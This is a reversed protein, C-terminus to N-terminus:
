DGIVVERLQGDIITFNTAITEGGVQAVAVYDGPRLVLNAESGNIGTVLVIAGQKIQWAVARISSGQYSLHAIGANHNIELASTIGPRIEVDTIAIANGLGMRSEIRYKGASLTLPEGPTGSDAVLEGSKKGTLAYVLSRSTIEPPTTGKLRPLIRLAGANLVFTIAISNGELLTFHEEIAITGLRAEVRYYGPKLPLSATTLTADLLREGASDFIQWQLNKAHRTSADTLRASFSASEEGTAVAAIAVEHDSSPSISNTQDNEPEIDPNTATLAPGSLVLALCFAALRSINFIGRRRGTHSPRTCADMTM